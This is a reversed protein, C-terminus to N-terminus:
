SKKGQCLVGTEALIPRNLPHLPAADPQCLRTERGTHAQSVGHHSSDCKSRRTELTQMLLSAGISFFYIFFYGLKIFSNLTFVGQQINGGWALGMYATILAPASASFLRKTLWKAHISQILIQGQLLLIHVSSVPTKAMLM